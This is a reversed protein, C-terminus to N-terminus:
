HWLGELKGAELENAYSLYYNRNPANYERAGLARLAEIKTDSALRQDGDELWKLHDALQMAWQYDRKKLASKMKRTLKKTGGALCAMREAEVRPHLRNLTTPNGDFWGLLGAYIARSAHAATGYFEVLYPQDKLTEPLQLEHAILNPGKGQNMGKITHDYVARIADSYNQLASTATKQDSIPSTHGGVLHEPEFAAM